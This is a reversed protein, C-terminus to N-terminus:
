FLTLNDKIHTEQLCSCLSHKNQFKIQDHGPLPTLSVTESVLIYNNLFVFILEKRAEM